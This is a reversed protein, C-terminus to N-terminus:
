VNEEELVKRIPSDMKIIQALKNNKNGGKLVCQEIKVQNEKNSVDMIESLKWLNRMRKLINM